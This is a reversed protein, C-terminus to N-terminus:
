IERQSAGRDVNNKVGNETLIPITFAGGLFCTKVISSNAEREGQVFNSRPAKKNQRLREEM